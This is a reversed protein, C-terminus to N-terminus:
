GLKERLGKYRTRGVSPRLGNRLEAEYRSGEQPHLAGPAIRTPLRWYGAFKM